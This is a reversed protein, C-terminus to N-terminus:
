RYSQWPHMLLQQPTDETSDTFDKGTLMVDIFEDETLRLGTEPDPTLNRGIVSTEGNIDEFPLFFVEGGAM